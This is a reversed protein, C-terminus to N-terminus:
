RLVIVGGQTGGVPAVTQEIQQTGCGDFSDRFFGFLPEFAGPLAIGHEVGQEFRAVTGVSGVWPVFSERPLDLLAQFEQDVLVVALLGTFDIM